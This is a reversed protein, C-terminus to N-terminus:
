MQHWLSVFNNNLSLNKRCFHNFQKRTNSLEFCSSCLPSFIIMNTFTQLDLLVSCRKLLIFRRKIRRFRRIIKGFRRKPKKINEPQFNPFCVAEASAYAISGLKAAQSLDKKKHYPFKQLSKRFSSLLLPTKLSVIVFFLRFM